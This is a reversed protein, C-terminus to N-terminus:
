RFNAHQTIHIGDVFAVVDVSCPWHDKSEPAIASQKVVCMRIAIAEHRIRQEVIDPKQRGTSYADTSARHILLTSIMLAIPPPYRARRRVSHPVTSTSCICGLSISGSRSFTAQLTNQDCRPALALVLGKLHWPRQACWWNLQLWIVCGWYCVTFRERGTIFM